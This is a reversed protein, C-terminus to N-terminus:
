TPGVTTALNDYKMRLIPRVVDANPLTDLAEGYAQRAKTTENMALYADGQIERTLGDFNADDTRELVKLAADPASKAIFLRALRLRAIQRIASIKSNNIVSRLQTEAADYNQKIIADRALM